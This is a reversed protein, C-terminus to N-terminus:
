DRLLYKKINLYLYLGQDDEIFQFGKIKLINKHSDNKM